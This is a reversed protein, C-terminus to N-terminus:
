HKDQTRGWSCTAWIRMSYRSCDVTSRAMTLLCSATMQSRSFLVSNWFTCILLNSTGTLTYINSLGLATFAKTNAGDKGGGETQGRTHRQRSRYREDVEWRLERAGEKRGETEKDWWSSMWEAQGGRGDGEGYGDVLTPGDMKGRGNTRRGKEKKKAEETSKGM